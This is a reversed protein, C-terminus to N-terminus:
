ASVTFSEGCGCEAKVNPNNYKFSENLGDKVFDIETGDIYKLHEENVVIRVDHSTFECMADTKKDTFDMTYALGSCGTTKVGLMLSTNAEKKSLFSKIRNAAQETLTIAM